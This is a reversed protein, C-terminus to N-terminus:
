FRIVIGLSTEGQVVVSGAYFFTCGGSCVIAAGDNGTFNVLARLDARLGVHKGVMWRVGGGLGISPRTDSVSGSAFRTAGATGMLLWTLRPSETSVTQVLGLHVVSVTLDALSPTLLVNRHLTTQQRSFYLEIAEDADFATLPVDIVGGYSATSDPTVSRPAVPGSRDSFEGGFRFGAIPVLDVAGAPLSAGLLQVCLLLWRYRVAEVPKLAAGHASQSSM